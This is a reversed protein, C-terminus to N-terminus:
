GENITFSAVELEAGAVLTTSKIRVVANSYEGGVDCDFIPVNGASFFRAWAPEGTALVLAKDIKAGTFVGDSVTGADAPLTVTALLTQSSIETDSTIPRPATYISFWGSNLWGKILEARATKTAATMAIVTSM